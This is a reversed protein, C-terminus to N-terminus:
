RRGFPSIRYDIWNVARAARRSWGISEPEPGPGRWIKWIKREKEFFVVCVAIM